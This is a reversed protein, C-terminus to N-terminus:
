LRPWSLSATQTRGSQAVLRCLVWESRRWSQGAVKRVMEESLQMYGASIAYRIVQPSPRLGHHEIASRLTALDGRLLDIGFNGWPLKRECCSCCWCDRDIVEHEKECIRLVSETSIVSAATCPSTAAHVEAPSWNGSAARSRDGSSLATRCSKSPTWCRSLARQQTRCTSSFCTISSAQRCIPRPEASTSRISSGM